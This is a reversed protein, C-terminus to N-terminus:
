AIDDSDGAGVAAPTRGLLEQLQEFKEPPLKRRGRLFAYFSDQTMGLEDAVQYAYKGSRVITAKIELQSARDLMYQGGIM